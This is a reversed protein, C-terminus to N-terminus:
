SWLREVVLGATACFGIWVAMCTAIFRYSMDSDVIFTPCSHSYKAFNYM